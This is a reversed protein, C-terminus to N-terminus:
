GARIISSDPPWDLRVRHIAHVLHVLRVLYVGEGGTPHADRGPEAGELRAAAGAGNERECKCVNGREHREAEM